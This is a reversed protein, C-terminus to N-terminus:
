YHWGAGTHDLNLRDRDGSAKGHTLTTIRSSNANLVRSISGRHARSTSDNSFSNVVIIVVFSCCSTWGNGKMCVRPNLVQRVIPM